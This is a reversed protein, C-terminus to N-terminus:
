FRGSFVNKRHWDLAVVSPYRATDRPLIISEKHFRSVVKEPVEIEISDTVIVRYQEDVSLLGSDFLWHHTKCLAIGNRVNDNRFKSFPLIHAADIISIGSSTIFKIGCVACTEEYNELIYRRFSASRCVEPFDSIGITPVLTFEESIQAVIKEEYIFSQDIQVIANTINKRETDSFYGGNLLANILATQNQVNDILKILAPALSISKVMKNFQNFSKPQMLSFGPKFDINWFGESKM